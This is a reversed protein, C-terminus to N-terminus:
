NVPPVPDCKVINRLFKGGKRGYWVVERAFDELSDYTKPADIAYECMEYKFPVSGGCKVSEIYEPFNHKLCIRELCDDETNSVTRARQYSLLERIEDLLNSDDYINRGHKVLLRELFGTIEWYLEDKDMTLRIFSAEEMPWSVDGCGSMFQDFGYGKLVNNLINKVNGLESGIRGNDSEAFRVLEEYFIGYGIGYRGHMFLAILKTIGLFHFCQVAWSFVYTRKWDDVSMTATAVVIEEKEVIEGQKRKNSHLMFIPIEVTELSYKRRYEVGYMESNVMMSCNYVNIQQHQGNSLLTDIGKVFSEYTEGPLAMILETYTMMGHEMYKKQLDFFQSIPINTRRINSLTEPNLSQMSISAGKSMGNGYLTKEIEFISESSNKANCARFTKPFAHENKLVGLYKVLDIDRRNIGFNSDCSFILEVRNNAFWDMEDYLRRDDFLRMKPSNTGWDCYTCHYPCGRNTEWSAVFSIDSDHESIMENFVGTLYPSSIVNLDQMHTRPCNNVVTDGNRYSLGLINDFGTDSLIACIIERLTEEGEGHVAVDIHRYRNMLVRNDAPIQPGGMIVICSPNVKSYEEAIALSINWNWIYCSICLIDCMGYTAVMSGMDCKEYIFPKFTINGAIEPFQKLYSMLIGSTYPLFRNSGFSNNIQVFQINLSM